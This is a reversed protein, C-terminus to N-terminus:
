WWSPAAHQDEAPKKSTGSWEGDCNHLSVDQLISLEM